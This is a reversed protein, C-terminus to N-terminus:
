SLFGKNIARNRRVAFRHVRGGFWRSPQLNAIRPLDFVRLVGAISARRRGPTADTASKGLNMASALRFGTKGGRRM